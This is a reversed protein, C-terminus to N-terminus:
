PVVFDRSAEATQAALACHVRYHGSGTGAGAVPTAYSWTVRGHADAPHDTFFASALVTGGSPLQVTAGCLAGPLTDVILTGYTADEVTVQLSPPTASSIAAGHGGAAPDSPSASERGSVGASCGIVLGTLIGTGVAFVAGRRLFSEGTGSTGGRATGARHRLM